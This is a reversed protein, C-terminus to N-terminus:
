AAAEAAGYGAKALRGINEVDGAAVSLDRDARIIERGRLVAAVKYLVRSATSM